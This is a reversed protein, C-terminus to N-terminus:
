IMTFDGNGTKRGASYKTELHGSVFWKPKMPQGIADIVLKENSVRKLSMQYLDSSHFASELSFLLATIFVAIALVGGVCLWIIKKASM